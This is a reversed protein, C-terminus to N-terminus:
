EYRPLKLPEKLRRILEFARQHTALYGRMKPEIGLKRCAERFKKDMVVGTFYPVIFTTEEEIVVVMTRAIIITKDKKLTEKDCSGMLFGLSKLTKDIAYIISRRSRPTHAYFLGDDEQFDVNEILGDSDEDLYEFSRRLADAHERMLPTSFQHRFHNRTYKEDHNSEDIFHKFHHKDLYAEIDERSHQLLPRLITYGKKIDLSRMGLLEPLGSGRTLQMLMWELRDNLQHATLLYTYSHQQILDEFFSHRKQRAQHEFNSGELICSHVFCKLHYKQALALANQEEADSTPRTHYNVHAIDFSIDNELLLHFLATSDVGGSFALLSKKERLRDLHLLKTM